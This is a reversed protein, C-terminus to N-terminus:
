ADGGCRDRTYFFKLRGSSASVGISFTVFDKVADISENAPADLM